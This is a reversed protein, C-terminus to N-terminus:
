ATPPLEPQTASPGAEESAPEEKKSWDAVAKATAEREALEVTFVRKAKEAAKECCKTWLAERQVKSHHKRIKKAYQQYAEKQVAKRLTLVTITGDPVKM